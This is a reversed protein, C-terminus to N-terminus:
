EILGDDNNSIHIIKIIIILPIVIRNEYKM